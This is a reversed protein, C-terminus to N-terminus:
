QDKARITQSTKPQLKMNFAASGVVVLQNQKSQKMLQLQLPAQELPHQRVLRRVQSVQLGLLRLIVDGADHPVHHPNHKGWCQGGPPACPSPKCSWLNGEQRPVHHPTAHGYTARSAPCMTLTQMVMLQGAPLACPSTEMVSHQGAAMTLVFGRCDAWLPNCHWPRTYFSLPACARSTSCTGASCGLMCPHAASFSPGAHLQLCEGASYPCCAHSTSVAQGACACISCSSVPLLPTGQGIQRTPMSVSCAPTTSHGRPSKRRSRRM